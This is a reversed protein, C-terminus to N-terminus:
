FPTLVKTIYSVPLWSSSNSVLVETKNTPIKKTRTFIALKGVVFQWSQRLSRVRVISTCISSPFLYERCGEQHRGGECAEVEEDRGGAFWVQREFPSRRSQTEDSRRQDPVSITKSCFIFSFFSVIFQIM